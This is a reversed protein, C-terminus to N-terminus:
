RGRDKVAVAYHHTGKRFPYCERVSFGAEHLLQVLESKSYLHHHADEFKYGNWAEPIDRYHAYNCYRGTCAERHQRLEKMPTSLLLIGGPKLAGHLKRMPEVPNYNLHELVESFVIVDAQNEKLPDTELNHREFKIDRKALWAPDSLEPMADMMKVKYGLEYFAASQTGYAGGYDLLKGPQMTSLEQMYHLQLDILTSDYQAHNPHPSTNEAALDEL